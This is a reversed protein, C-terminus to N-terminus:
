IRSRRLAGRAGPYTQSNIINEKVCPSGQNVPRPLCTCNNWNHKGFDVAQEHGCNLPGGMRLAGDDVILLEFDPFTQSLVSDVCERVYSASNYMSMCVSVPVSAAAGKSEAQRKKGKVNMHEQKDEVFISFKKSVPWAIPCILWLFTEKSCM